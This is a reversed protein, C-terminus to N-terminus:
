VNRRNPRLRYYLPGLPKKLAYRIDRRLKDNYHKIWRGIAQFCAIREALPIPYALVAQVYGRLQMWAPFFIKDEPWHPNFYNLTISYITRYRRVSTGPYHRDHHLYEPLRHFRGQLALRAIFIRDSTAYHEHLPTNRIAASRIVGFNQFVPHEYALLDAFRESVRPSDTRLNYTYYYIDDGHEDIGRAKSYCLVVDPNNDLVEVCKEIFDPSYLDDHTCWKFYEGCSLDFARNFNRSVGLNRANRYYRLRSDRALYEQCIQPTSDTSGNDVIIVEFDSFTQALISDLSQRLFREANYIPLGISVRPKNSTM